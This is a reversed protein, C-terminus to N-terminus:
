PEKKIIKLASPQINNLYYFGGLFNPDLYLKDINAINSDIEFIVWKTNKNYFKKINKLDFLINYKEEIYFLKLKPILLECKLLSDCLYIRGDYDHLTLKSKSKPELGNKLISNEYQQITIHYLKDPIDKILIDFKSEFKLIVSLLNKLSLYLEDKNFKKTNIMGYINEMKMKSPFWGYQNFLSSLLIEIIDTMNPTKNFELIEINFTNNDKVINFNINYLELLKITDKITKDIDYTKILGENIFYVFNEFNYVQSM